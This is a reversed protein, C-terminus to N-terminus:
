KKASVIASFHMAFVTKNVLFSSTIHLKWHLAIVSFFVISKKAHWVHQPLPCFLYYYFFIGCINLDYSYTYEPHKTFKTDFLKSNGNTLSIVMPANWYITNTSLKNWFIWLCKRRKCKWLSHHRMLNEPFPPSSCPSISHKNQLM